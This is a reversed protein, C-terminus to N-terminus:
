IGIEKLVEELNGVIASRERTDKRAEEDSMRSLVTLKQEYEEPNYVFHSIGPPIYLAYFSFKEGPKLDEPPASAIEIIESTGVADALFIIFWANEAIFIEKKTIHYHGEKGGRGSKAKVIVSYSPAFDKDTLGMDRLVPNNRLEHLNYLLGNPKNEADLLIPVALQSFEPSMAQRKDRAM